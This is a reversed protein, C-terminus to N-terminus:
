RTPKLASLFNEMMWIENLRNGSTFVFRRGDPHLRVDRGVYDSPIKRPDGGDVPVQWIERKTEKPGSLRGGFLLAKGEQTWVPYAWEKIQGSLLDRTEGGAAPLIRIVYSVNTSTIPEKVTQDAPVYLTCFSLQKGDPSIALGSIDLPVEQRAVRYVEKEQGSELDHRVISLLKDGWQFNGYFVSKGDPAVAFSKIMSGQASRAVLTLKGTQIDIKFLGQNGIEAATAYIAKGDASWHLDWFQWIALPLERDESAKDPRICLVFTGESGSAASRESVYALYKGDPSWEPSHSTGVVRQFIKKAPEVVTGKALDLAGESVETIAISLSYYFSGGDTFGMSSIQGLGQRVLAPEGQPKGDVSHLAWVDQTGARNSSFLIVDTGPVWGLLRDDAPHKVLPTVEKSDVSILFVDGAQAKEDQRYDYIVGKGDPTFAASWSWVPNAPTSLTNMSGDHVSILAMLPPAPMKGTLALISKGDRSWDLPVGPALMRPESDDMGVIWIEMSMDKNLMGYAINKGDPSWTSGLIQMANSWNDKRTFRRTQGTVMDRIAPYVSDVSTSLYRGDPSPEGSADVNTGSLLRRVAMDGVATRSPTGGLAALRARAAQAQEAQDAYQRVIQEYASRAETQGLKEYCQGMELLAKAAVTRSVGSRALIRKYQDIAANLDGKVLEMNKAAQLLAEGQKDAQGAAQVGALVGFLLIAIVVSPKASTRM